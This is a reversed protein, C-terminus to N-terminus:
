PRPQWDTPTMETRLGVIKGDRVEVVVLPNSLHWPAPGEVGRKTVVRQKPTSAYGRTVLTYKGPEAKQGGEVPVGEVVDIVKLGESRLFFDTARREAEDESVPELDFVAAPGLMRRAAEPDSKLRLAFDQLLALPGDTAAHYALFAGLTLAAALTLLFLAPGLWSRGAGEATSRDTRASPM